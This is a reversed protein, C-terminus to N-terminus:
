ELWIKVSIFFTCSVVPGMCGAKPQDCAGRAIKSRVQFMKVIFICPKYEKEHEVARAIYYSGM